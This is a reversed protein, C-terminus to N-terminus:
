PMKVPRVNERFQGIVNGAPAYHAVVIIQNGSRAFAAGLKTSSKWIVQTFHGTVQSFGPNKFDYDKIEDYRFHQKYFFNIVAIIFM